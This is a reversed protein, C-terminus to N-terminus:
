FGMKAVFKLLCLDRSYLIRNFFSFLRGWPPTDFPFYSALSSNEPPHPLPEQWVVKQPPSYPYKRGSGCM